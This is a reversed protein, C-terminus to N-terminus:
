TNPKWVKLEVVGKEIFFEGQTAITYKAPMNKLRWGDNATSFKKEEAPMVITEKAIVTKEGADDETYYQIEVDQGKAVKWTLTDEDSIFEDGLVALYYGKPATLEASNVKKETKLVDLVQEGVETGDELVFKVTVKRTTVGPIVPIDDKSCGTLVGAAAVALAATGAYKLFDRRSVNAM